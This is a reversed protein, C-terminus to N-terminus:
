NGYTNQLHALTLQHDSTIGGKTLEQELVRLAESIIDARSPNNDSSTVNPTVTTNLLSRAEEQQRTMDSLAQAKARAKDVDEPTVDFFPSDDEETTVEPHTTQAYHTNSERLDVLRRSVTKQPIGTSEAIKHGSMGSAHLEMIKADRKEDIATRYEQTNEEATRKAISMDMLWKVVAKSDYGFDPADEMIGAIARGVDGKVKDLGNRFNATMAYRKADIYTGEIYEINVSILGKMLAAHFRHFGDVIYWVDDGNPYSVNVVKIPSDELIDEITLALMEIHEHNMECRMQMEPEICLDTIAVHHREANKFLKAINTMTIIEKPQM